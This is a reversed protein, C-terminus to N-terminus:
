YRGQLIAKVDKARDGNPALELYKKFHSRATMTDANAQAAMALSLHADPYTPDLHLAKKALRLASEANGEDLALDAQLSLVEASQPKIHAAERLAQRTKSFQGRFLAQKGKSIVAAFRAQAAAAETASVASDSAAPPVPSVPPASSPAPEIAAPNGAVPQPASPESRAPSPIAPAALQVAAPGTPAPSPPLSSTASASPSASPLVPEPQIGASSPPPSPAPSVAPIASPRAPQPAAVPARVPPESPESITQWVWYLGVGLGFLGAGMVVPRVRQWLSPPTPQLLAASRAPSQRAAGSTSLEPPKQLKGEADLQLQVIVSPVGSIESSSSSLPEISSASLVALADESTRSGVAPASDSQSLGAPLVEVSLEPLSAPAAPAPARSALAVPPLSHEAAVPQVPQPRSHAVQALQPGDIPIGDSLGLGRGASGSSVAQGLAPTLRLGAHASPATAVSPSPTLRPAPTLPPTLRATPAPALTPTLRPTPPPTMRPAPTLRPAPPPTLTMRRLPEAVHATRPVLLKESLLQAVGRLRGLSDLPLEEDLEVVDRITRVGNFSALVDEVEASLAPSHSPAVASLVAGALGAPVLVSDLSPLKSTLRSWEDVWKAAELLLASSSLPIRDPRLVALQDVRYEGDSWTFVRQLADEGRLRGVEADILKGEAFYLVGRQGRSNKCHVLGSRRLLDMSQLLDLMSIASLAGFFRMGREGSGLEGRQAAKELLTEVRWLAEKLHVPRELVDGAGSEFARLRDSPRRPDVVFLVLMRECGPLARLRAALGFGDGDVLEADILSVAPPEAEAQTLAEEGSLAACVRYGAQRLGVELLRLARADSDVVLVAPPMPSGPKAGAQSGGREHGQTEM